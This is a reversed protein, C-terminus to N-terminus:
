RGPNHAAIPGFELAAGNALPTVSVLAIGAALEVDIEVAGRGRRIAQVAVRADTPRAALFNPVAGAGELRLRVVHAALAQMRVPVTGSGIVDLRVREAAAVLELRTLIVRPTAALWDIPILIAPEDIAVLAAFPDRPPEQRAATDPQAPDDRIWAVIAADAAYARADIPDSRLDEDSPESATAPEVLAVPERPVPEVPTPESPVVAVPERPVPESPAVALPEPEPRPPPEIVVIPQPQGHDIVALLRTARRHEPRSSAALTALAAPAIRGEVISARAAALEPDDQSEHTAERPPETERPPAPEVVIPEPESAEVERQPPASGPPGACGLVLAVVVLAGSHVAHTPPIRPPPGARVPASGILPAGM